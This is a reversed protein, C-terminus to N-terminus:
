AAGCLPCIGDEELDVDHSSMTTPSIDPLKQRCCVAYGARRLDDDSAVAPNFALAVIQEMDLGLGLPDPLDGFDGDDVM